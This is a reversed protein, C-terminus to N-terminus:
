TSVTTNLSTKTSDHIRHVSLWSGEFKGGGAANGAQTLTPDEVHIVQMELRFWVKTLLPLQMAQHFSRM